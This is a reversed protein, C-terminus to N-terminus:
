WLNRTWRIIVEVFEYNPKIPTQKLEMWGFQPIGISFGQGVSSSPFISKGFFPVGGM